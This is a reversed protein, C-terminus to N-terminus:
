GMSNVSFPYNLAPTQHLFQTVPAFRQFIDQEQGERREEEQKRGATPHAAKRLGAKRDHCKEESHMLGCASIGFSQPGRFGHALIFRGLRTKEPIKDARSPSVPHVSTCLPQAWGSLDVM